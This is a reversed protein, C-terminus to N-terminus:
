YLWPLKRLLFKCLKEVFKEKKSVQLIESISSYIRFSSFSPDLKTNKLTRKIVDTPSQQLSKKEFTLYGLNDIWPGSISNEEHKKIFRIIHNLPINVKPGRVISVDPRRSHELELMILFRNIHEFYDMYIVNFGTQILQTRIKRGIKLGQGWYVDPSTGSVLFLVILVLVRGKMMDLVKNETCYPNKPFFFSLKPEKLLWKSALKILNLKEIKLSAAVNRYKDVPDVIIFHKKFFHYADDYSQWLNETDVFIRDKLAIESITQLFSGYHLVLLECGYGPLGGTKIEGGYANIGRLFRKLLRIEDNITETSHMIVYRTHLPTRDVSSLKKGISFAPVIDVDFNRIKANLYPHEAYGRTFNYPLNKVLHDLIIEFIEKPYERKLIVFIDIDKEGSLWTNKAISGELSVELDLKLPKLAVEIESIIERSFNMIEKRENKTPRIEQLVYKLIDCLKSNYQSCLDLSTNSLDNKRHHM